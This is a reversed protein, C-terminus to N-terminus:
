LSGGEFNDWMGTNHFLHMGFGGTPYTADTTTAGPVPIGNLYGTILQGVARIEVVDGPALAGIITGEAAVPLQGVTGVVKFLTWKSQGVPQNSIWDFLWGNGNADARVMPGGNDIDTGSNATSVFTIKAYQNAPPSVSTAFIFNDAAGGGTLRDSVISGGAAGSNLWNVGLNARDFDDTFLAAPTSPAPTLATSTNSFDGLNGAADTARVRYSYSTSAAVATDSFLTGTGSPAAIQAFNSCSAGQCREIRYGTVGVNDTAADWTLDVQAYWVGT